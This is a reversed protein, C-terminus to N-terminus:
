PSARGAGDGRRWVGVRISATVEVRDPLAAIRASLEAPDLHRASPGMAALALADSRPLTMIWALDSSSDRRLHPALAADTRREKDPDVDLLGLRPRLERLHDPAPTAVLLAGDDRLVRRLEAGNRPAFVDLVLAACGDALPLTGRADAVIAAIRPHARAARRAAHKSLDISLGARAPAADVVRALHHATGGGVEVALGPAVRAALAALADSLPALHGAALFRARAAVMGADDGVLGSDRGVLFSVYGQRAVDFAHGSACRLAAAAAALPARCIPCRLAALAEPHM